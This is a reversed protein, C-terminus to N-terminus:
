RLSEFLADIRERAAERTDGYKEQIRGALKEVDGEATTWDDDTLKGWRSRAEGRFQKWLGKIQDANM